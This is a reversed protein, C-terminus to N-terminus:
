SRLIVPLNCTKRLSRLPHMHGFELFGSIMRKLCSKASIGYHTDLKSPRSMGDFTDFLYLTRDFVKKKRLVKAIVMSSGGKWVGCEVFDGAINNKIIYEVSAALAKIREPSTMTYPKVQRFMERDDANFDKPLTPNAAKGTFRKFIRKM